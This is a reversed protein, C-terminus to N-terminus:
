RPGGLNGGTALSARDVTPVLFPLGDVHAVKAHAGYVGFLFGPDWASGPPVMVRGDRLFVLQDAVAFALNPDHLVTLVTKGRVALSRLLGLFLSQNGLDLHTTPEDFLIVRPDQVLVRAIMVMQREGGSLEAYSRQALHQIGLEHLVASVRERESRGPM